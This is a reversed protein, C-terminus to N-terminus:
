APVADSKERFFLLCVLGIVGMVMAGGPHLLSGAAALLALPYARWDGAWLGLVGFLWASGLGLKAISVVVAPIGFRRALDMWPGQQGVLNFWDQAIFPYIGQYLLGVGPYLMCATLIVLAVPRVPRLM